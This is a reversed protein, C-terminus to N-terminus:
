FKCRQAIREDAEMRRQDDWRNWLFVGHCIIGRLWGLCFLISVYYILPFTHQGHEEVATPPHFIDHVITDKPAEEIGIRAPYSYLERDWLVDSMLLVLNQMGMRNRRYGLVVQFCRGQVRCVRCGSM